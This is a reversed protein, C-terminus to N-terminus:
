GSDTYPYGDLREKTKADYLNIYRIEYGQAEVYQILKGLRTVSRYKLFVTEGRLTAKLIVNYSPM